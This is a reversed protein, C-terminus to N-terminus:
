QSKMKEVAKFVRMFNGGMFAKIDAENVGRKLLESIVLVLDTYKTVVPKYNADMDTGLCVSQAGLKEFLEMIRKVFGDLTSIGVGTPWAGIIGGKETIAKALDNSIFRPFEGSPGGSLHTHSCITPVKLNALAKFATPESAHALDIIIGQKEMEKIAELGFDTLGGRVPKQTQIDGIESARYHVITISRLGDEYCQKIRELKGELFDAGEMTLIAKLREPQKATEIDASSLAVGVKNKAMADKLNAIQKRYSEWAENPAFERASYLGGSKKMGIVNIDAVGAFAVAAIDTKRMDAISKGENPHALVRLIWPLDTNHHDKVFTMGPHAHTDILPSQALLIKAKEVFSEDPVFGIQPANKKKLWAVGGVGAGILGLGALILIDRRKM